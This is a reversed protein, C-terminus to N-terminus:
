RRRLIDVSGYDKYSRLKLHSRSGKLVIATKVSTKLGLLLNQIAFRSTATQPPALIYGLFFALALSLDGRWAAAPHDDVDVGVQSALIHWQRCKVVRFLRESRLVIWNGDAHSSLLALNNLGVLGALDGGRIHLSNPRFLAHTPDIDDCCMVLFPGPM